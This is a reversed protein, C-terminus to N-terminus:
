NTQSRPYLAQCLCRPQQYRKDLLGRQLASGQRDQLCCGALPHLFGLLPSSRVEHQPVAFTSNLIPSQPNTSQQFPFIFEKSLSSCSFAFNNFNPPILCLLLEILSSHRHSSFSPFLFLLSKNPSPLTQGSVPHKASTDTAAEIGRESCKAAQDTMWCIAAEIGRDTLLWGKM